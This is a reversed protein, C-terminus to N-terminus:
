LLRKKVHNSEAGCQAFSVVHNYEGHIKVQCKNEEEMHALEMTKSMIDYTLDVRLIQGPLWSCLLDRSLYPEIKDYIEEFFKICTTSVPVHFYEQILKDLFGPWKIAKYYEFNADPM